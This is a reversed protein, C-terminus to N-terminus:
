RREIVPTVEGREIAGTVHYRLREQPTERPRLDIGGGATLSSLERVDCGALKAARLVHQRAAWLEGAVREGLGSYRPERCQRELAALERGIREFDPANVTM